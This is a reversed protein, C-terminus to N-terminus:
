ELIKNLKNGDYNYFDTLKYGEKECIIKIYRDLIQEKEGSLKNDFDIVDIKISKKAEEVIKSRNM